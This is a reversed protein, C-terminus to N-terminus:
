SRCCTSANRRRSLVLIGVTLTLMTMLILGWESVTPIPATPVIRIIKSVTDNDVVYLARDPGFETDGFTEFGTGIVTIDGADNVRLLEGSAADIFYADRGWPFGGPGIVVSALSSDPLEIFPDM